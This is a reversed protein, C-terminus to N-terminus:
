SSNTGSPSSTSNKKGRSNGKRRSNKKGHRDAAVIDLWGEPPTILMLNENLDVVPVLDKAFPLLITKKRGRKVETDSQQEGDQFILDDRLEIRLVDYTGTGDLVDVVTGVHSRDDMMEVRLGGLEQVYFEDEDELNDRSSKHIMLTHGRIETVEEPSNIHKLKVIWVDRGKYVSSRGWALEVTEVTPLKRGIKPAPARLWRTGATGLRQEPMDTLPQVKFEGQVGHAPGVIGIEILEETLERDALRTDSPPSSVEGKDPEFAYMKHLVRSESLISSHVGTYLSSAGLSKPKPRAHQCARHAYRPQTSLWRYKMEVDM